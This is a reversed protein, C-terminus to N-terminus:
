RRRVYSVFMTAEDTGLLPGTDGGTRSQCGAALAKAFEMLNDLFGVQKEPILHFM